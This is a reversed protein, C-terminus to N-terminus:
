GVYELWENMAKELLAEVNGEDESLKQLKEYEDAHLNIENRIKFLMDELRAVEQEAQELRYKRTSESITKQSIESCKNKPESMKAFSQAQQQMFDRREQKKESYYAFDGYYSVIKGDEIESIRTAIRNIFYRDHSVFLITGQFSLLAAELNERSAIDLHNTPEDLVLFNIKHQLLLILKLRSKEGGSLTAVKRFVSDQYFRYRALLSRGEGETMSTEQCLTQLITLEPNEFSVNQPLYGIKLSAGIRITGFDVAEQGLLMMLATTKGCGNPGLLAVHEKYYIDMDAGELLVKEGFRKSVQDFSVVDKGSREGISFALGKMQEEEKPKEVREIRDMRHQMSKARQFMKENNAQAAWQRMQKIAHEMARLQKQQDKYELLQAERQRERETAYASYNGVYVKATGDELEVVKQAVADLFYRDHSVVAVSGEYSKLYGELWELMSVDLHNTPEDLLLLDPNMLLVKALGTLTKEGGSLCTFQKKLFEDSLHLGTCIRGLREHVQYGGMQEYKEATKGYSKLVRELAEGEIHQMQEELDTMQKKCAFIEGFALCIVELVTMQEEYKPIQELYGITIGKRFAITGEEVEEKGAIMSLLTSKGCGNRGVLAIREGEKVDFTVGKLVPFVGFYKKVEFCSFDIM